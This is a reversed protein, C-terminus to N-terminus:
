LSRFLPRQTLPSFPWPIAIFIIMLAIGYGILITKFKGHDTNKRKALASAITIVIIAILMLSIHIISFFVPETVRDNGVLRAFFASVAPSKSYLIMGVVLQIHALTATSHRWANDTANHDRHETYGRYARVISYILAGLVLWRLASHLFLFLTYM